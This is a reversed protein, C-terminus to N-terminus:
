FVLSNVQTEAKLSVASVYFKWSPMEGHGESPLAEQAARCCSWGLSNEKMSFGDKSREITVEMCSVKRREKVGPKATKSSIENLAKHIFFLMKM